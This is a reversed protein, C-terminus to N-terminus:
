NKDMWAVARVYWKRAEVPDGLRQHAMALFFWALGEHLDVRLRGGGRKESRKRRAHDVLIRRMAEAAAGFFHGRGNWGPRGDEGVLRM